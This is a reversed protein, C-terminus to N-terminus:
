LCPQAVVSPHGEPFTLTPGGLSPSGRVSVLSHVCVNVPTRGLLGGALVAAERLRGRVCLGHDKQSPLAWVGVSAEGGTRPGRWVKEGEIPLAECERGLM